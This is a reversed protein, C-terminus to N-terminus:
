GNLQTADDSGATFAARRVNTRRDREDCKTNEDSVVAAATWVIAVASRRTTTTVWQGVAAAADKIM